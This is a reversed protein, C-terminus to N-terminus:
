PRYARSTHCDKVVSGQYVCARVWWGTGWLWTTSDWAYASTGDHSPDNLSFLLTDPNDNPFGGDYFAYGRVGWGDSKTDEVDLRVQYLSQWEIQDYVNVRIRAIGALGRAGANASGILYYSLSPSPASQEDEVVPAAQASGPLAGSVLLGPLSVVLAALAVGLRSRGRSCPDKLRRHVM